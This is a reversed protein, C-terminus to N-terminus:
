KGSLLFELKVVNASKEDLFGPAEQNIPTLQPRVKSCTMMVEPETGKKESSGPVGIHASGGPAEPHGWPFGVRGQM